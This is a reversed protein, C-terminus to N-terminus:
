FVTWFDIGSGFVWFDDGSSQYFGFKKDAICIIQFHEEWCGIVGYDVMIKPIVFINIIIEKTM